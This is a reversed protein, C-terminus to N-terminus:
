YVVYRLGFCHLYRESIAWKATRYLGNRLGIFGMEHHSITCKLGRYPGNQMAFHHKKCHLSIARLCLDSINLINYFGRMIRTNAGSPLDARM